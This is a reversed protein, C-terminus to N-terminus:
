AFFAEAAVNVAQLFAAEAPDAVSAYTRRHPAAADDRAQRAAEVAADHEPKTIQQASLESAARAIATEFEERLPEVAAVFARRAPEIATSFTSEAALVSAAYQRERATVPPVSKGAKGIFALVQKRLEAYSPAGVIRDAPQGSLLFLLTPFGKVDFRDAHVSNEDVKGILILGDLEAALKELYPALRRCPPCWPAWFDVIVPLSAGTVFPDFEADALAVLKASM